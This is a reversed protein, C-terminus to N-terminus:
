VRPVPDRDHAHQRKEEDWAGVGEAFPFAASALAAGGIIFVGADQLNPDTGM